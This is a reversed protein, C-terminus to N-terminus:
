VPMTKPLQQVISKSCVSRIRDGHLWVLEDHSFTQSNTSDSYTSNSSHPASLRTPTSHASICHDSSARASTSRASSSRASSSRAPTSRTPTSRTPTSYSSGPTGMDTEVCSDVDCTSSLKIKKRSGSAPTTAVVGVTSSNM